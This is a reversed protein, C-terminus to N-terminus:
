YFFFGCSTGLLVTVGSDYIFIFNYLGKSRHNQTVRKRTDQRKKTLELIVLVTTFQLGNTILRLICLCSSYIFANFFLPKISTNGTKNPTGM